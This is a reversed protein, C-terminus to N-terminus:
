EARVISRDVPELLVSVVDGVDGADVGVPEPGVVQLVVLREDRDAVVLVPGAVLAGIDLRRAVGADVQEEPAAVFDVPLGAPLDGILASPVAYRM